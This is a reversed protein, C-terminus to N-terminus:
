ADQVKTKRINKTKRVPATTPAPPLEKLEDEDDSLLAYKANTRAFTAAEREQAKYASPASSAQPIRALLDAAFSRTASSAPLGQHLCYRPKSM